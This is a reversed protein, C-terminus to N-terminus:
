FAYRITCYPLRQTLLECFQNVLQGKFGRKYRVNKGGTESYKVEQIDPRWLLAEGQPHWGLNVQHLDENHTLFIVESQVQTKAQPSLTDDVQQFLRDYDQLWGDYYVVPAFNLHVEYGAEVFDNVANIRDDISSTRIDIVQAKDHPMLSFRIRTKGQPDYNLLDRNVRKTAFTAKANPLTRFLAILDKVNDCIAADVSCDGNEGIEYVWYQPDVQNPESKIGQKAAHRKLYQGIRDINVFTTIPNAYGKRRAVYCYSCAQACGNSHSPAVFDSSRSNPRAAISKKVGLVLVTRKIRNWDDVSDENGHLEPINWHSAVEIRKADCYRELIDQARAYELAAPEYYIEQINLLRNLSDSHPLHLTTM